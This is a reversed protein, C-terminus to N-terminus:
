GECKWGEQSSPPALHSTRSQTSTVHTVAQSLRNLAPLLGGDRETGEAAVVSATHGLHCLEM